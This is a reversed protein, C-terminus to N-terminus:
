LPAYCLGDYPLCHSVSMVQMVRGIDGEAVAWNFELHWLSDRMRLISNALCHDGEFGELQAASLCTKQKKRPRTTSRGRVTPADQFRRVDNKHALPTDSDSDVADNSPRSGKPGDWYKDSSTAVDHAHTSAWRSVLREALAFVEPGTPLRAM